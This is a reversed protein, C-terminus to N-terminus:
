MSVFRVVYVMNLHIGAVHEADHGWQIQMPVDSFTWDHGYYARPLFFEEDPLSVLFSVWDSRAAVLEALVEDLSRDRWEALMAANSVAFDRVASFDPEEGTVMSRMTREGWRDWGAVHALIDKVSWDHYVPKETLTPQDLGLLGVLLGAREASLRALLRHRRLDNQM